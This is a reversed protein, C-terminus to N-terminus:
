KIVEPEAATDPTTPLPERTLARVRQMASLLALVLDQAEAPALKYAHVIIQPLPREKTGKDELTLLAVGTSSASWVTQSTETM